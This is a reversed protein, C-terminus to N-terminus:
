DNLQRPTPWSRLGAWSLAVEVLEVLPVSELESLPWWRAEDTSGDIENSPEGEVEVRYVFQVVHMDPGPTRRRDGSISFSHVGLPQLPTPTLGTEELFERELGALPHEGWDLGGGPLTWVGADAESPGLKALLVSGSTIALGYVGIRLQRGHEDVLM